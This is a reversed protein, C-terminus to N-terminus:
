NIKKRYTEAYSIMKNIDQSNINANKIADVKLQNEKEQWENLFTIDNVDANIAEAYKQMKSDLYKRICLSEKYTDEMLEFYKESGGFGKFFEIIEDRNEANNLSEKLNQIYTQYESESVHFGSEISLKYLSKRELLQEVATSAIDNQNVNYSLNLIEVNNKLEAETISINDSQALVKSNKTNLNKNISEEIKKGMYEYKPEANDAYGTIGLIFIIMIIIPITIRKNMM